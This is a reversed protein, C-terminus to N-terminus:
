CSKTDNCRGLTGHLIKTINKYILIISDNRLIGSKEIYRQLRVLRIPLNFTNWIVSGSM